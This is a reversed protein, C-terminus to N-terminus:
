QRSREVSKAFLKEMAAEFSSLPYDQLEGKTFVNRGRILLGESSMKYQFRELNYLMGYLLYWSPLDVTVLSILDHLSLRAPLRTSVWKTIVTSKIEQKPSDSVGIIECKKQYVNSSALM